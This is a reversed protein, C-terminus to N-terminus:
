GGNIDALADLMRIRERAFERLEAFRHSDQPLRTALSCAAELTYAHGWVDYVSQTDGRKLKPLRSFMFQTAKELAAQVEPTDRQPSANLGIICLGTTGSRFALPGSPYPCFINIGKTGTHDGWSGDKNQHTLLFQVGRALAKDLAELTPPATDPLKPIPISDAKERAPPLSTQPPIGGEEGWAPLLTSCLLIPFIHKM